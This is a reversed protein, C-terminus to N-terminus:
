PSAIQFRPTPTAAAEELVATWRVAVRAAPEAVAAAEVREEGVVWEVVPPEGEAV